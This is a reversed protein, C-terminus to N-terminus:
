LVLQRGDVCLFFGLEESEGKSECITVLLYMVLLSFGSHCGGMVLLLVM